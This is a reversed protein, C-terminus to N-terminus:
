TVLMVSGRYERLTVPSGGLDRWRDDQLLSRGTRQAYTDTSHAGPLGRLVFEGCVQAFGRLSPTPIVLLVIAGAAIALWMWRRHPARPRRPQRLRALGRTENAAWDAPPQIVALRDDVWRADDDHTAM